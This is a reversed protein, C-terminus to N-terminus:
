GSLLAFKLNTRLIRFSEGHQGSPQALMVLGDDRALKRPPAPIRALLPLDLREAIETGSRVRTDLAEILFMLGAGVVLGLFIGLGAARKPRPEIQVVHTATRVVSMRSTWLAGLM